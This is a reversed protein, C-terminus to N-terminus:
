CFHTGPSNGPPLLPRHTVSVVKGGDQATTLFDPFWLKRSGEPGSWAQLPVAKGKKKKIIKIHDCKYLRTSGSTMKCRVGTQRGLQVSVHKFNLPITLTHATACHNLYQAVFWFAAPEIGSPTTSIKMSMFGESRVIARPDFLGRVSILVLIIEQPFIRGTGLASLREVM